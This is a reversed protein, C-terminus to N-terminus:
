ESSPLDPKLLNRHAYYWTSSVISLIKTVEKYCFESKNKGEQLASALKQISANMNFYERIKNAKKLTGNLM